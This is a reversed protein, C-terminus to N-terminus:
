GRWSEHFIASSTVPEIEILTKRLFLNRMVLRVGYVREKRLAKRFVDSGMRPLNVFRDAKVTLNGFSGCHGPHRPVRALPHSEPHFFRLIQEPAFGALLTVCESHAGSWEWLDRLGVDGWSPHRVRFEVVIGMAHHGAFGAVCLGSRGVFSHINEEGADLGALFAMAFLSRGLFKGLPTAKFAMLIVVPPVLLGHLALIIHVLKTTCGSPSSRTASRFRDTM